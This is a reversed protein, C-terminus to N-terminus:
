VPSIHHHGSCLAHLPHQYQAHCSIRVTVQPAPSSQAWLELQQKLKAQEQLLSAALDRAINREKHASQVQQVAQDVEQKMATVQSKADDRSRQLILWGLYLHLCALLCALCASLLRAPLCASM